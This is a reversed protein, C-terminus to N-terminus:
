QRLAKLASGSISWPAQTVSSVATKAITSPTSKPKNSVAIRLIFFGKRLPNASVQTEM